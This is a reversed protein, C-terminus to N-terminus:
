QLLASRTSRGERKCLWGVVRQVEGRMASELIDLPLSDSVGAESAEALAAAAPPPAAHKRSLSPTATHVQAEAAGHQLATRGNVNALETSSALQLPHWLCCGLGLMFTKM